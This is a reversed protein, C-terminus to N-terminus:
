RRDRLTEEISDLRGDIDVLTQSMLNLDAKIHMFDRESAYQKRISQTFAVYGGALLGLVGALAPVLQVLLEM